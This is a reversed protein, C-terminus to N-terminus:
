TLLSAHVIKLDIYQNHTRAIRCCTRSKRRALRAGRHGHQLRSGFGLAAAVAGIRGAGHAHDEVADVIQNLEVVEGLVFLAVDIEAAVGGVLIEVVHAPHGVIAAVGLQGVDQDAAGELGHLPHAGLAHAELGGIAALGELHVALVLEPAAERDFGPAAPRAQDIKLVLGGHLGANGDVVLRRRHRQDLFVADHAADDGAVLAALDPDAGLCDHQGAAAELAVSLHARAIESRGPIEGLHAAGAEVGAGADVHRQLDAGLRVAVPRAAMGDAPVHVRRFESVEIDAVIELLM